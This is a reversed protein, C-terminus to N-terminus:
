VFIGVYGQDLSSFFLVGQPNLTVVWPIGGLPGLANQGSHSWTTPNHSIYISGDGVITSVVGNEM